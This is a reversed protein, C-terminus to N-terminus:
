ISVKKHLTYCQYGKPNDDRTYVVEFGLKEYFGEAQFEATGLNIQICARKRAEQEVRHMLKKGIHQKRYSENVVFLHVYISDEYVDCTVGGVFVDNDLAVIAFDSNKDHLNNVKNHAKQKKELITNAEEIGEESTIINYFHNHELAM